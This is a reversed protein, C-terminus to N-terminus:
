ANLVREADPTVDDFRAGQIAGDAATVSQFHYLRGTAKYVKVAIIEQCAREIEKPLTAYGGSYILKFAKARIGSLSRASVLEITNFDASVIYDTGEVLLTTADYVRPIASSFHLSTITGIPPRSPFLVSAYHSLPAPYETVSAQAFTRNCWTPGQILDSVQSILAPLALDETSNTTIKWALRLAAQTTLDAM